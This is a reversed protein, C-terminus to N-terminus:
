AVGAGIRTGAYASALYIEDETATPKLLILDRFAGTWFMSTGGRAGVYLTASPWTGGACASFPATNVLEVGDLMLSATADALSLDVTSRIVGPDELPASDAVSRVVGNGAGGRAGTEICGTLGDNVGLFFGGAGGLANPSYECIMKVTIGATTDQASVIMTLRSYTDILAGLDATSMAQAGSFVLGPYTIADPGTIAAVSKAPQVPGSAQVLTAGGTRDVFSAAAGVALTDTDWWALLSPLALPTFAGGSRVLRRRIKRM